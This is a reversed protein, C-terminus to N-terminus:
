PYEWNENLTYLIRIKTPIRTSQELESEQWILIEKMKMKNKTLTFREERAQLILFVKKTLVLHTRKLDFLFNPKYIDSNSVIAVNSKREETEEPKDAEEETSFDQNDTAKTDQIKLKVTTLEMKVEHNPFVTEEQLSDKTHNVDM